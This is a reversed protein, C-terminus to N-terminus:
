PNQITFSGSTQAVVNAVPAPPEKWSVFVEISPVDRERGDQGALKELKAKFSIPGGMWLGILIARSILEGRAVICVEGEQSLISRAVGAYVKLPKRGIFLISTTHANRTQGTTQQPLTAM